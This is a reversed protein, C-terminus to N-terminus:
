ITAKWTLNKFYDRVEDKFENFENRLDLEFNAQELHLSDINKNTGILSIQNQVLELRKQLDIIQSQMKTFLDILQNQRVMVSAFTNYM